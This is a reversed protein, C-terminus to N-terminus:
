KPCTQPPAGLEHEIESIMLATPKGQDFGAPPHLCLAQRAYDLARALYTRRTAPDAKAAWRFYDWALQHNIWATRQSCFGWPRDYCLRAESGTHTITVPLIGVLELYRFYGRHSADTLEGPKELWREITASYYPVHGSSPDLKRIEEITALPAKFADLSLPPIRHDTVAQFEGELRAGLAILTQEQANWSSTAARVAETATPLDHSASTRLLSLGAVLLALIAAIGAVLPIAHRRATDLWLELLTKRILPRHTNLRGDRAAAIAALIGARNEIPVLQFSRLGLPLDRADFGPAGVAILKLLQAAEEAEECVCRSGISHRSWIVIVAKAQRLRALIAARFDEGSLLESDWWVSWNKATLEDALSQALARDPRSYSIFVDSM